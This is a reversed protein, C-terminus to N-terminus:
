YNFKSNNLIDDLFDTAGESAAPAELEIVQVPKSGYGGGISYVRNPDVRPAFKSAELIADLAKYKDTAGEGFMAREARVESPKWGTKADTMIPTTEHDTMQTFGNLWNYATGEVSKLGNAGDNEAVLNIYEKRKNDVRTFAGKPATAAPKPFLRDLIDESTERTIERKSLEVLKERIAAATMTGGQIMKSAEHMRDHVSKTHRLTLGAGGDKGLAAQLTNACIVRVTTVFVKMSADSNHNNSFCLYTEHRDGEVVEFPRAINALVFVKEGKGLAGAAEYHAGGEAEMLADVFKFAQRNQVATWRGQVHGLFGDLETTEDGELGTGKDSRFVGFNNPLVLGSPTKLARTEVEWDMGAALMTEEWTTASEVIQGLNHWTAGVSMMEYRQTKSNFVLNHSM